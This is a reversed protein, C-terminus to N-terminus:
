NRKPENAPEEIFVCESMEKSVNQLASLQSSLRDSAQEQRCTSCLTACLCAIVLINKIADLIENM